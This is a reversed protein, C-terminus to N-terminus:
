FYRLLVRGEFDGQTRPKGNHDVLAFPGGVPERNWMLVDMLEAASRGPEDQARVTALVLCLVVIVNLGVTLLASASRESM